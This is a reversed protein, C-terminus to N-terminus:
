RCFPRPSLGRDFKYGHDFDELSDGESKGFYGVSILNYVINGV